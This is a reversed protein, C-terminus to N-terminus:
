KGAGRGKKTQSSLQKSVGRILNLVRTPHERSSLVRHVWAIHGILADERSSYREQAQDLSGGSVMTQYILPPGEGWQHNLGLFVTSVKGNRTATRGVIRDATEYWSAWALLNTAPVPRGDIEIYHDTM